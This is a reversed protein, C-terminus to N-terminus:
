AHKAQQMRLYARIISENKTGITEVFYGNTWFSDEWLFPKLEKGFERRIVYSSVDKLLNMAKAPSDKPNLQILLHIHDSLVELAHITWHNM